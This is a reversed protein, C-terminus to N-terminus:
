RMNIRLSIEHNISFHPAYKNTDSRTPHQYLSGSIGSANTQLVIALIKELIAPSTLTLKTCMVQPKKDGAKSEGNPYCCSASSSQSPPQVNDIAALLSNFGDSDSAKPGAAPAASNASAIVSANALELLMSTATGDDQHFTDFKKCDVPTLPEGTVSHESVCCLQM